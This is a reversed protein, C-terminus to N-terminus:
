NRGGTFAIMASIVESDDRGIENAKRYYELAGAKDNKFECIKALSLYAEYCSGHRCFACRPADVASKAMAVAEDWKGAFALLLAYDKKRYTSNRHYNLYNEVSGSMKKITLIAAEALRMSVGYKGLRWAAGGMEVCIDILTSRM